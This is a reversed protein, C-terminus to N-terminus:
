IGIRPSCRTAHKQIEASLWVPKRESGPFDCATENQFKECACERSRVSEVDEGQCVSKVTGLRGLLMLKESQM